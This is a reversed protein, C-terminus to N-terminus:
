NSIKSLIIDTPVIPMIYKSLITHYSAKTYIVGRTCGLAINMANLIIRNKTEKSIIAEKFDGKFEYKMSITMLQIGNTDNIDVTLEISLETDDIEIANNFHTTLNNDFQDFNYNNNISFDENSIKVLRINEHNLTKEDNQQKHVPKSKLYSLSTAIDKAINKRDQILGSKDYIIEKDLSLEKKIQEIEKSEKKHYKIVNAIIRYVITKKISNINM